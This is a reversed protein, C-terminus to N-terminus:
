IMTNLTLNLRQPRVGGLVARLTFKCGEEIDALVNRYNSYELIDCVDRGCFYPVIEEDGSEDKIITSFIKVNKSEFVQELLDM